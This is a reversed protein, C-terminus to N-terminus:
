SVHLGLWSSLIVCNVCNSQSSAQVAGWTEHLVQVGLHDHTLARLLKYFQPKSLSAEPDLGLKKFCKLFRKHSKVKKQIKQRINEVVKPIDMAQPSWHAININGTPAVNIKAFQRDKVKIGVRNSLRKQLRKSANKKRLSIESLFANKHDQSTKELKTVKAKTLVLRTDNITLQRTMKKAARRNVQGQLPSLDSDMLHNAGHMAIQFAFVTLMLLPIVNICILVAGFLNRSFTAEVAKEDM